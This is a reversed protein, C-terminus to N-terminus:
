SNTVSSNHPKERYDFPLLIEELGDLDGEVVNLEEHFAESTSLENCNWCYSRTNEWKSQPKGCYICVNQEYLEM